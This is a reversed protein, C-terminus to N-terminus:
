RGLLAEYDYVPRIEVSGFRAGPIGAAVRIAEDLDACECLYFGGIQEAVEAFPGDTAIVEDDRVSVTTSIDAPQLAEGALFIGKTFLLDKYEAYERQHAEIEEDSWTEGMYSEPYRLLLVYKM